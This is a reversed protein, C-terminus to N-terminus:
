LSWGDSQAALTDLEEKQVLRAALVKSNEIVCAIQLPPDSGEVRALAGILHRQDSRRQTTIEFRSRLPVLKADLVAKECFLQPCTVEAEQTEIPDCGKVVVAKPSRLLEPARLNELLSFLGWLCVGALCAFIAFRLSLM